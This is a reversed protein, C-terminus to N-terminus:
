VETSYIQSMMTKIRHGSNQMIPAGSSDVYDGYQSSQHWMNKQTITFKGTPTPHNEDGTSLASLGVLQGSKYFYAEQRSLSIVIYPTGPVGDGRWWSRNDTPQARYRNDGPDYGELYVTQGAKRGTPGYYYLDTCSSLGLALTCLASWSLFHRQRRPPSAIMRVTTALIFCSM